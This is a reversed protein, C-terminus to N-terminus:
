LFTPSFAAIYYHTNSDGEETTTLMYVFLVSDPIRRQEGLRVIKIRLTFESRDKMVWAM